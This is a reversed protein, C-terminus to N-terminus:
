ASARDREAVTMTVAAVPKKGHDEQSESHRHVFALAFGTAILILAILIAIFNNSKFRSEM